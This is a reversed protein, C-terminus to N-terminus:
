RTGGKEVANMITKMACDINEIVHELEGCSPLMLDIVKRAVQEFTGHYTKDCALGEPEPHLKTPKKDRYVRLEWGHEYREAEANEGIKIMLTGGQKRHTM